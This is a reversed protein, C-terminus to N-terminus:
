IWAAASGAGRTNSVERLTADRPLNPIFITRRENVDLQRGSRGHRRDAKVGDPAALAMAAEELDGEEGSLPHAHSQQEAGASPPSGAASRVASPTASGSASASASAHLTLASIEASLDASMASPDIPPHHTRLSHPPARLTTSAPRRRHTPRRKSTRLRSPSLSPPDVSRILRILRHPCHLPALLRTSRDVLLWM